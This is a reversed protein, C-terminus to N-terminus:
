VTRRYIDAVLPSITADDDRRHYLQPTSLAGVISDVTDPSANGMVYVPATLCIDPVAIAAGLFCVWEVYWRIISNVVGDVTAADPELRAVQEVAFPRFHEAVRASLTETAMGGPASGIAIGPAAGDVAGLRGALEMIQGDVFAPTIRIPDALVVAAPKAGLDQLAAALSMTFAAGSCYGLLTAGPKVQASVSRAAATAHARLLDTGARWPFALPSVRCSRVVDEPLGGLLSDLQNESDRFGLDVAVIEVADVEALAATVPESV